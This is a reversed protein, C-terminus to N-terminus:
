IKLASLHWSLAEKVYLLVPIFCLILFSCSGAFFCVDPKWYLKIVPYFDIKVCGKAFCFSCIFFLVFILILLFFDRFTFKYNLFHTRKATGFGRCAMSGATELTEELGSSFTLGLNVIRNKAGDSFGAGRRGDCVDSYKKSVFPILRFVMVLMISFSPAIKSFLFVFKDCSLEIGYCCFIMILSCFMFAMNMGYLLAEKTCPRGLFNFLVTQGYHSFFLNLFSFVCFVPFLIFFYRLAKSGKIIFFFIFSSFFAAASVLPSKAGVTLIIVFLYYLVCVAPHLKFFLDFM